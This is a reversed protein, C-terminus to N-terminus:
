VLALLAQTRDVVLHSIEEFHNAVQLVIIPPTPRSDSSRNEPVIPLLM